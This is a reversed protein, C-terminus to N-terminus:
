ICGTHKDIEGREVTRLYVNIIEFIMAMCVYKNELHRLIEKFIRLHWMRHKDCYKDPLFVTFTFYLNDFNM